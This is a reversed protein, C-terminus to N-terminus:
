KEWPLPAERTLRALIASAYRWSPRPAAATEQLAYQIDISDNKGTLLRSLIDAEIFRPMERGLADRYMERFESMEEVFTSTTTTTTATTTSTTTTTIENERM